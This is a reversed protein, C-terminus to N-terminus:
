LSLSSSLSLRGAHHSHGREMTAESPQSGECACHKAHSHSRKPIEREEEEEEEGEQQHDQEAPRRDQEAGDVTRPDRRKHLRVRRNNDHM